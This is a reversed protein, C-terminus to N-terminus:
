CERPEFKRPDEINVEWFSQNMATKHLDVASCGSGLSADVVKHWEQKAQNKHRLSLGVALGVILAIALPLLLRCARRRDKPSRLLRSPSWWTSSSGAGPADYDDLTGDKGDEEDLAVPSHRFAKLSALERVRDMLTHVPAVQREFASYPTSNQQVLSSRLALPLSERSGIPATVQPRGAEGRALFFM